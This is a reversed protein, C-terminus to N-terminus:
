PGTFYYSQYLIGGDLNTYFRGPIDLPIAALTDAHGPGLVLAAQVPDACRGVIRTDLNARVRGPVADTDPRQLSLVLSLGTNRSERALKSLRRIIANITERTAKDAGTLDTMEAVEDLCILVRNMTDGPNLRNYDEINKCEVGFRDSTEDFRQQRFDRMGCLHTLTALISNLDGSFHCLVERWCRPFDSAGKMSMLYVAYNKELAQKIIALLHFTKGSGTSGCILMHPLVNLDVNVPGDLSMGLSLISKGKPPKELFVKTPLQANSSATHLIIQQIERGQVVKIIRRHLATELRERKDLFESLPIGDCLLTIRGHTDTLVFPPEGYSNVVGARICADAIARAHRPTASLAVLCLYLAMFTPFGLMWWVASLLKAELPTPGSMIRPLWLFVLWYAVTSVWPIPSHAFAAFGSCIRILLNRLRTKLHLDDHDNNQYTYKLITVVLNKFDKINCFQIVTVLAQLLSFWQPGLSVLYM